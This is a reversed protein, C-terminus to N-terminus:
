LEAVGPAPADPGFHLSDTATGDLTVNPADPYHSAGFV